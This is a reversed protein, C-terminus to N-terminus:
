QVKYQVNQDLSVEEALVAAARELSDYISWGRVAPQQLWLKDRNVCVRWLNQGLWSTDMNPQNQLLKSTLPYDRLDPPLGNKCSKEFFQTILILVQLWQSLWM